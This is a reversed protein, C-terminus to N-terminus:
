ASSQSGCAAGLCRNHPELLRETVGEINQTVSKASILPSCFKETRIWDQDSSISYSGTRVAFKKFIMLRIWDQDALTFDDM